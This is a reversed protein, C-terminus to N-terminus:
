SPKRARGSSSLTWTGPWLWGCHTKCCRRRVARPMTLTCGDHSPTSVQPHSGSNSRALRGNWPTGTSSSWTWGEGQVAGLSGLSGVLGLGQGARRWDHQCLVLTNPGMEGANLGSPLMVQLWTGNGQPAILPRQGGRGPRWSSPISVLLTLCVSGRQTRSAHSGSPGCGPWRDFWHVGRTHLSVAKRLGNTSSQSGHAVGKGRRFAADSFTGAVKKAPRRHAGDHEFRVGRVGLLGWSVGLM